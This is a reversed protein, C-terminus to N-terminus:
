VKHKISYSKGLCLCWHKPLKISFFGLLKASSCLISRSFIIVIENVKGHLATMDFGGLRGIGVKCCDAVAVAVTLLLMGSSNWMVRCMYWLV